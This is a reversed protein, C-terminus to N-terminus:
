MSSILCIHFISTVNPIMPDVGLKHGNSPSFSIKVKEGSTKRPTLPTQMNRSLHWGVGFEFSSFDLLPEPWQETSSQKHLEIGKADGALAQSLVQWRGQPCQIQPYGGPLGVNARPRLANWHCLHVFGHDNKEVPWKKRMTLNPRGNQPLGPFSQGFWACSLGLGLQGFLDWSQVDGFFHRPHVDSPYASQGILGDKAMNMSSYTNGSFIVKNSNPLINWCTDRKTSVGVWGTKDFKM